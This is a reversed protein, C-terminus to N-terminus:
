WVGVGSGGTVGTGARTISGAGVGVGTTVGESGVVVVIVAEVGGCVTTVVGDAGTTTVTGLVNKKRWSMLQSTLNNPILYSIVHYIFEFL